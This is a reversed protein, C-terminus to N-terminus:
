RKFSFYAQESLIM